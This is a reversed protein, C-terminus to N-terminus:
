RRENNNDINFSNDKLLRSKDQFNTHLLSHSIESLPRGLFDDYIRKIDPNEYSCRISSMTDCSYLGEIRKKCIEDQKAIPVLPQGGGGICGGRCNMVEIFHYKDVGLKLLKELNPLGHVIAVKIEMDNIKITAEKIEDLGRVSDFNLLKEHYKEGTLLYYTSRIIAESVGGTNGFIVGAGSGRKFMDDYSSDSLSNFDIGEEKLYISLESTTLVYDGDVIDLNWYIGSDKLNERKIEMKKSTCPTIAVTIIDNPNINKIKAFYTKIMTNQMAIPSKCTSLNEILEPHYIECYKVWSPCCSSYQPLNKHNKIREILESAEEMITLDAGFTTDFVYDFGLKKLAFIMKKEVNTGAELGFEEGLAVRIAPATLAIVIKKSNNIEEKVKQYDYKPVIAGMPCNLICQGCNICAPNGNMKNQYCIGVKNECINKCIGCDVCKEITRSIGPNEIDIYVKKSMAEDM